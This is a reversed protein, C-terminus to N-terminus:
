RRAAEWQVRDIEAAIFAGARQLMKIRVEVPINDMHASFGVEDRPRLNENDWPYASMNGDLAILHAAAKLLEYNDNNGADYGPSYRALQREREKAILGLGSEEYSRSAPEYPVWEVGPTPPCCTLPGSLWRGNARPRWLSETDDDIGASRAASEREELTLQRWCANLEAGLEEREPPSLMSDDLIIDTLAKCRDLSAGEERSLISLAQLQAEEGPDIDHERVYEDISAGLLQHLHRWAAGRDTTLGRAVELLEASSAGEPAYALIRLLEPVLPSEVFRDGEIPQSPLPSRKM